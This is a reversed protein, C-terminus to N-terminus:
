HIIEYAIIDNKGTLHLTDSCTPNDTTIECFVPKHRNKTRVIISFENTNDLPPTGKDKVSLIM